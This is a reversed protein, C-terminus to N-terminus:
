NESKKIFQFVKLYKESTKRIHYKERITNINHQKIKILNQDNNVLSIIKSALCYPDPSVLFGNRHDIIEPIGAVPTAIIALGNAMGELIVNPLGETIPFNRDDTSFLLIDHKQLFEPLKQNDIEGFM